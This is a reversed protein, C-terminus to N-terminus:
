TVLMYVSVCFLSGSGPCGGVDPGILVRGCRRRRHWCCGFPRACGQGHGGVRESWCRVRDGSGQACGRPRRLVARVVGLLRVAPGQDGEHHLRLMRRAQCPERGPTLPDPWRARRAHTLPCPTAPQLTIRSCGDASQTPLHHFPTTRSVSCLPQLCAMAQEAEEVGSCKAYTEVLNSCQSACTQPMSLM